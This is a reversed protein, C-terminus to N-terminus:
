ESYRTIVVFENTILDYASVAKYMDQAVFFYDDKPVLHAGEALGSDFEDSEAYPHLVTWEGTSVDLKMLGKYLEIIYLDDDEDSLFMNKISISNDTPFDLPISERNGSTLSVKYLESRKYIYAVGEDNSVILGNGVGFDPGAGIGADPDSIVESEGSALNVKLLRNYDGSNSGSLIYISEADSSSVVIGRPWDFASASDGSKSQLLEAAIGTQLDIEYIPSDFLVNRAALLRNNESDIVGVNLPGLNASEGAGDYTAFVSRVGTSLEVALVSRYEAVGNDGDSGLLLLRNQTEDYVMEGIGFQRQEDDPFPMTYDQGVVTVEVPEELENGAEDKVQLSVRNEGPALTISQQWEAFGTEEDPELTYPVTSNEHYVILTVEAVGSLEDSARGRITLTEAGSASMPPPFAIEGVPPEEDPATTVAWLASETGVSLNVEQTQDPGELTVARLTVSSGESVEGADATFEGDDIQYEGGEISIAVPTNIATITISESIVETEPDLGDQPAFGFSDPTTDEAETTVTFTGSVGGITLTATTEASFNESAAVQVTVSDGNEAEGDANTFSGGNVAYQGGSISLTAPADIESVTIANSTIIAGPEVDM